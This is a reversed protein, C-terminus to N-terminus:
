YQTDTMVVTNEALIGFAYIFLETTNSLSLYTTHVLFGQQTSSGWVIM